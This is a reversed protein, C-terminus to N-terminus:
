KLSLMRLDDVVVRSYEKAGADNLHGADQFYDPNQFRVDSFYDLFPVEQEMAIDKIMEIGETEKGRYQPSHTFVLEINNTKCLRILKRVYEVKLDEVISEQIKEDSEKEQDKEFLAVDMKGNLAEYGRDEPWPIFNCKITQVAKSNYRYTKSLLALKEKWGKLAFLSNIEAFRGYHPALRDLAADLSFTAGNSVMVDTPMVECLVVKPAAGRDVFSSLVAYSYYICMGDSGANYCTLGLSDMFVQPVYHHAARSSGLILMDDKSENLCYIQRRFIGYKSRYYMKENAAGVIQDVVVLLLLMSVFGVLVKQWEKWQSTKAM